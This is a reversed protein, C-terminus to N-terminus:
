ARVALDSTAVVGDCKPAAMEAAVIESELGRVLEMFKLAAPSPTCNRMRVLASRTRLEPGDFDLRLLEGRAFEASLMSASGPFLADSRCAVQKATTLSNVEITPAFGKRSLDEAGAHGDGMAAVRAKHGHMFVTVLPYSLVQKL